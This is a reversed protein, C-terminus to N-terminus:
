RNGPGPVGRAAAECATRDATAGTWHANWCLRWADSLRPSPNPNEHTPEPRNVLQARRLAAKLRETEARESEIFSLTRDQRVRDAVEIDHVKKKEAAIARRYDIAARDKEELWQLTVKDVGRQHGIRYVLSILLAVMAAIAITVIISPLIRLIFMGTPTKSFGALLTSIIM